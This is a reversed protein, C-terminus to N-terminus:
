SMGLEDYNHQWPSCYSLPTKPNPTNESHHQKFHFQKKIIGYPKEHNLILRSLCVTQRNQSRESIKHKAESIISHIKM